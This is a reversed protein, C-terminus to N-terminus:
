VRLKLDLKKKLFEQTADDTKTQVKKKKYYFKPTKNETSKAPAKSQTDPEADEKFEEVLQDLYVAITMQDSVEAGAADCFPNRVSCIAHLCISKVRKLVPLAYELAGLVKHKVLQERIVELKRNDRKSVSFELTRKQKSVKTGPEYSFM